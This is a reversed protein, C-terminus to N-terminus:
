AQPNLFCLKVKVTLGVMLVLGDRFRLKGFCDEFPLWKFVGAKQKLTSPFIKFRFTKWFSSTVIIM